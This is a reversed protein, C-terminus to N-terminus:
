TMNMKDNINSTALLTKHPHFQQLLALNVPPLDILPVQPQLMCVGIDTLLIPKFLEPFPDPPGVSGSHWLRSRM